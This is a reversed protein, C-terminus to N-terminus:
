FSASCQSFVSLFYVYGDDVTLLTPLGRGAETLETITGPPEDPDCPNSPGAETGKGATGGTSSADSGSALNSVGGTSDSKCGQLSSLAFGFVAAALPWCWTTNAM